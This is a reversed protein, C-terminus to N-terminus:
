IVRICKIRKSAVAFPIKFNWKPHNMLPTYFYVTKQINNEYRCDQQVKKNVWYYICTHTDRKQRIVRVLIELVTNFLFLFLLCRERIYSRLPLIKLREDNLIMNSTYIKYLNRILNLFNGKIGVKNPIKIM